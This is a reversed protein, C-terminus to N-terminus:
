PFPPPYTTTVFAEPHVDKPLNLVEMLGKCEYFAWQDVKKLKKPLTVKRLSICDAFFYPAITDDVTRRKMLIIGDNWVLSYTKDVGIRVMEDWDERTAEDADFHFDFTPVNVHSVTGKFVMKNTRTHFPATAVIRANTLDLETLAGYENRYDQPLIVAGAMRRILDMDAGNIPGKITLKRIYPADKKLKNALTGAKSLKVVVDKYQHSTDPEIGIIAEKFPLQWEGASPLLLARFYGNGFGRWGFDFHLFDGQLGDCVFLHRGGALIVPRGAEIDTRIMDVMERENLLDTIRKCRPSYSWTEFLAAKYQSLRTHSAGTSLITGLSLACDLLLVEPKIDNWDVPYDALDYSYPNGHATQGSIVGKLEVPAKYYTLVQALAIPGCGVVSYWANDGEGDMPFLKNYPLHQGYYIDACFPGVDNKKELTVLPQPSEDLTKLISEYLSIMGLFFGDQEVPDEEDASNVWVENGTGYALVTSGLVEKYRNRAVLVFASDQPAAFYVCQPSEYVKKVVRPHINLSELFAAGETWEHRVSNPVVVAQITEPVFLALLISLFLHKKM